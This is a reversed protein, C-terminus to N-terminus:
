ALSPDLAWSSDLTSVDSTLAGQNTHQAMDAVRHLPTLELLRGLLASHTCMAVVANIDSTSAAESGDLGPLGGNVNLGAALSLASAPTLAQPTVAQPTTLAQPFVPIGPPEPARREEEELEESKRKRKRDKSKDKGSKDIAELISVRARRAELTKDYLINAVFDEGGVKSARLVKVIDFLSQALGEIKAYPDDGPFEIDGNPVPDYSEQLSIPPPVFKLGRLRNGVVDRYEPHKIPHTLTFFCTSDDHFINVVLCGKCEYREMKPQSNRKRKTKKRRGGNGDSEDEDGDASGDGTNSPSGLGTVVGLPNAFNLGSAAMRTADDLMLQPTKGEGDETEAAHSAAVIAAITAANFDDSTTAEGNPFLSLTTPDTERRKATNAASRRKINDQDQRQACLYRLSHAYKLRRGSRCDKYRNTDTTLSYPAPSLHLSRVRFLLRYSELDNRRTASEENEGEEDFGAGWDQHGRGGRQTGTRSSRITVRYTKWLALLKWARCNRPV